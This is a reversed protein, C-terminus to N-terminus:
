EFNFNIAIVQSMLSSIAHAHTTYKPEYINILGMTYLIEPSLKIRDGYLTIGFGFALSLDHTTIKLLSLDDRVKKNSALNVGVQGGTLVYVRSRRWYDTKFQFMVPMNLYSAEIKRMQPGDSFYYRFDRQELSITPVFRLSVKKALNVNTIMGLNLGYRPVLQIRHLMVGGEEINIQEKLNYSNYTLGMLFGLNFRKFDFPHRNGYSQAHAPLAAGLLLVTLVFTPFVRPTLM